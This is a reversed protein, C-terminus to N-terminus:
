CTRPSRSEELPFEYDMEAEKFQGFDCSDSLSRLNYGLLWLPHILLVQVDRTMVCSTRRMTMSSIMAMILVSAMM